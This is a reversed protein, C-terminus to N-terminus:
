GGRINQEKGSKLQMNCHVFQLLLMLIIILMAMQAFGNDKLSNEKCTNYNIHGNQEKIAYRFNSLASLHGTFKEKMNTTMTFM